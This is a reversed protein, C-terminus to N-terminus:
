EVVDGERVREFGLLEADKELMAQIPCCARVPMVRRTSDTRAQIVNVWRAPNYKNVRPNRRVLSEKGSADEHRGYEAVGQVSGGRCLRATRKIMSASRKSKMDGSGGVGSDVKWWRTSVSGASSLADLGCFLM